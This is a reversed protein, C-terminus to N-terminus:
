AARSGGSLDIECWVLDRPAGTVGWRDAIQDVIMFRPGDSPGPRPIPLELAAGHGAVEFRVLTPTRRVLLEIDGGEEPSMHEVRMTVLESVCLSLDYFLDPDFDAEWARLASRAAGAAHPLGRFRFAQETLAAASSPAQRGWRLIRSARSSRPRSKDQHNSQPM